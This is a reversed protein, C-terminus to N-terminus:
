YKEVINKIQILFDSIQNIAEDTEKVTKDKNFVRNYRGFRASKLGLGIVGNTITLVYKSRTKAFFDSCIGEISNCISESKEGSIVFPPLNSYKPIYINERHLYTASCNNLVIDIVNENEKEYDLKSFIYSYYYTSDTGDSSTSTVIEKSYCSWFEMNNYIKIRECKKSIFRDGNHSGIYRYLDFLEWYDDLKDYYNMVNANDKYLYLVKKQRLKIYFIIASVLSVSVFTIFSESFYNKCCIVFLLTLIVYFAICGYYLNRSYIPLPTKKNVVEQSINRKKKNLKVVGVIYYILTSIFLTGFVAVLVGAAFYGGIDYNGSITSYTTLITM